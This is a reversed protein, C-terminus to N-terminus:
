FFIQATPLNHQEKNKKISSFYYYFCFCLFLLWRTAKIRNFLLPLIEQSTWHNRSQVEVTLTKAPDKTPSSLNWM